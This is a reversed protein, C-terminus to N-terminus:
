GIVIVESIIKFIVNLLTISRFDGTYEPNDKKPILSIFAGLIKPHVKGTRLTSNVLHMLVDGVM